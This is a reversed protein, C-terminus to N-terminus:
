RAADKAGPAPRMLIMASAVLLTLFLLIWLLPNGDMMFVVSGIIVFDLTFFISVATAAAIAKGTPLADRAIAYRLIWAAILGLVITVAVGILM